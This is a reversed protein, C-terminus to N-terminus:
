SGKKNKGDKEREEIQKLAKVYWTNNIDDDTIEKLKSEETIEHWWSGYGWIIKKLDPVYIAPNTYESMELLIKDGKQRGVLGTPASCLYMGLFTKGKYEKACPRIAVMQGPEALGPRITENLNSIEINELKVYIKTM